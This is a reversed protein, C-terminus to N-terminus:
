KESRRKHKQHRTLRVPLSTYGKIINSHYREPEGVLEIDQMRDLLEEWLIRLQMEALRNGMCRHIGFGFSVHSRANARDVQLAHPNDFQEPDRNGSAYWMALRDGKKILKGSFEIDELATRRIYSVPTQWRIIEAVMNRILSRDAKVKSFEEPYQNLALVGGSISNRTTDNGGVLLLMLNGHFEEASMDRTEPNRLLMSLLDNGVPNDRRAEWLGTFYDFCEQLEQKRQERSEVVGSEVTATTIDSWRTLRRREEFPFDFLTALMQTTLEISVLDVWNFTEGVPLSEIIGIARERILAELQALNRPGTAPAVAKRQEDHRPQDMAIFSSGTVDDADDFTISPEASFVQHNADVKRIDEYRTISWFPGAFSSPHYHVPDENRLREFYPHLTNEKFLRRDTPDIDELPLSYALDRERDIRELDAEAFSNM